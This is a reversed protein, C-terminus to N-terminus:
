AMVLVKECEEAVAQIPDRKVALKKLAEVDIFVEGGNVHLVTKWGHSNSSKM